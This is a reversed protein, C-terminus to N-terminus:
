CTHLMYQLVHQIISSYQQMTTSSGMDSAIDLGSRCLTVICAVSLGKWFDPPADQLAFALKDLTLSPYTWAAGWMATTMYRPRNWPCLLDKVILKQASQLVPRDRWKMKGMAWVIRGADPARLRLLEWRARDSVDREDKLSYLMRKFTATSLDVLFLRGDQSFVPSDPFVHDREDFRGRHGQGMHVQVLDQFVWTMQAAAVNCACSHKM